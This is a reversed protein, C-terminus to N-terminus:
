KKERELRLITNQIMEKNANRPAIEFARRYHQLAELPKDPELLAGLQYHAVFYDPNIELSRKLWMVAQDVDGRHFAFTSMWYYLPAERYGYEVARRIEGEAEELRGSKFASMVLIELLGPNGLDAPLMKKAMHFAENFEGNEAYFQALSIRDAPLNNKLLRAIGSQEVLRDYRKEKLYVTALSAHSDISGPAVRVAQRWTAEPTRWRWDQVATLSMLFIVAAAALVRGLRVNGEIATKWFDAVVISAGVIPLYLYRDKLAVTLPIINSVPLLSIFFWSVGMAALPRKRHLIAATAMLIVIVAAAVTSVWSVGWKIVEYSPSLRMPWLTMGIYRLWVVAMTFTTSCVGGGRVESKAPNLDQAVVTILGMELAYAFYPIKDTVIKKWDREGEVTWQYIMLLLPLVVVSAKSLLAALFILLSFFYRRRGENRTMYLWFSLLGFFQSMMNKREAIWAVSEVCAPHAGFFLAGLFAADDRGSLKKLIIFLFCVCGVHWIINEVRYGLPNNGWLIHDFAYSLMHLPLYNHFYPRVLISWINAATFNQILENREIYQYDDIVFLPARLSFLFPISSLAALVFYIKKSKSDEDM